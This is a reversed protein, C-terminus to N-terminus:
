LLWSVVVKSHGLDGRGLDLLPLSRSIVVEGGPWQRSAFPWRRSSFNCECRGGFYLLQSGVVTFHCSKCLRALVEFHLSLDSVSCDGGSNCSISRRKIATTTELGKLLDRVKLSLWVLFEHPDAHQPSTQPGGHPDGMHTALKAM